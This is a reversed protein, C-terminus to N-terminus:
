TCNCNCDFSYTLCNGQPYQCDILERYCFDDCKNASCHAGSGCLFSGSPCSAATAPSNMGLFVATGAVAGAMWGLSAGKPPSVHGSESTAFVFLPSM